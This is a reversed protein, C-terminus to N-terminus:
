YNCLKSDFRSVINQYDGSRTTVEEDGEGPGECIGHEM